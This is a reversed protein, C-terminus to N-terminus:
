MKQGNKKKTKPMKNIQLLVDTLEFYKKEIKLKGKSKGKHLLYNFKKM